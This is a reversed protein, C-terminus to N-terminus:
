SLMKEIKETLGSLHSEREVTLIAEIAKSKNEGKIWIYGNRGTYIECGSKTKIINIMSGGKGIIRPVKNPNVKILVGGYLKRSGIDKMSVQITKDKTVKSVTCFIIDDVDFYRSIDTKSIDVFGAVGEALPLFAVYPSNIDIMWGSIEVSLVKGIIRDGIRPIYAGALPIVSVENEEIKPIGLVKAFIKEGEFYAGHGVKRGTKECLFEGPVVVERKENM